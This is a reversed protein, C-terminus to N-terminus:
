ILDGLGDVAHPTFLAIIELQAQRSLRARVRDAETEPVPLLPTQPAKLAKLKGEGAPVYTTEYQASRVAMIAERIERLLVAHLDWERIPPAWSRKKKGSLEAEREARAVAEGYEPDDQM